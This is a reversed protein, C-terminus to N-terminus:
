HRRKWLSLVLAGLALVGAAGALPIWHERAVGATGAAQGRVTKARAAANSRVQAAKAQARSKVDARAALEQVTEGLQERTREIEAELQKATPPPAAVTGTIPAAQQPVATAAPRQLESGPTGDQTATQAASRDAGQTTM